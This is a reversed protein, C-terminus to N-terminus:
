VKYHVPEDSKEAELQNRRLCFGAIDAASNCGSIRITRTRPSSRPSAISPQPTPSAPGPRALRCDRWQAIDFSGRIVPELRRLRVSQGLAGGRKMTSLLVDYLGKVTDGRSPSAVHLPDSLTGLLLGAAFAM